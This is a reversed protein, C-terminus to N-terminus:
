KSISENTKKRASIDGAMRQSFFEMPLHLVKWMFTTSGVVAIKGNIRSTYIDKIFELVVRVAGMAAMAYIFPMLWDPNQGTM